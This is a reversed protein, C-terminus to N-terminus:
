IIFQVFTEIVAPNDMSIFGRKLDDAIASFGTGFAEHPYVPRTLKIIVGMGDDDIIELVGPFRIVGLLEQFAIGTDENRITILDIMGEFLFPIIQLHGTAPYM